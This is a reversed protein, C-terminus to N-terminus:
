IALREGNGVGIGGGWDGVRGGGWSGNRGWIRWRGGSDRARAASVGEMFRLTPGRTQRDGEGGRGSDM